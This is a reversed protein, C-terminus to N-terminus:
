NKSAQKKKKMTHKPDPFTSFMKTVLAKHGQWRCGSIFYVNVCIVETIHNSITLLIHCFYVLHRSLCFYCLLGRQMTNGSIYAAFSSLSLLTDTNLLSSPHFARPSLPYYSSHWQLGLVWIMLSSKPPKPNKHTHM